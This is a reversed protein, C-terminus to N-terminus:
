SRYYTELMRDLGPGGGKFADAVEGLPVGIRDAVSGMLGSLSSVDPDPVRRGSTALSQHYGDTLAAKIALGPADDPLGLSKATQGPHGAVRDILDYVDDPEAQDIFGDALAGYYADLDPKPDYEM